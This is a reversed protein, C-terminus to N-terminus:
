GIRVFQVRRNQAAFPDATLPESMAKGILELRTPAIGHRQVLYDAVSLARRESLSLNYGLTGLADTHGEIRLKIHPQDRMLEAMRDIFAFASNPLDASDFAFNIRFGVIGPESAPAPAQAQIRPRPQAQTMRPAQAPAAEEAPIPAPIGVPAPSAMPAAMPAHMPAPAELQAAAHQALSPRAADTRQLVIARSLGPRSEPIMINRLQELSPAQEFIRVSGQVSGQTTSQAGAQSCLLAGFAAALLLSRRASRFPSM